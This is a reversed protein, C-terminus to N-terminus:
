SFVFRTVIKRAGGSKEGDHYHMEQIMISCSRSMMLCQCTTKPKTELDYDVHFCEQKNLNTGRLISICVLCFKMVM